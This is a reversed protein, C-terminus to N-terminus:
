GPISRGLGSEGFVGIKGIGSAPSGGILGFVGCVVPAFKRPAVSPSVPAKGGSLMPATPGDWNMTATFPRIRVKLLVLPVASPTISAFGSTNKLETMVGGTTFLKVLSGRM